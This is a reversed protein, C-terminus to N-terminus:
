IIGTLFLVDLFFVILLFQKSKLFCLYFKKVILIPDVLFAKLNIEVSHGDRYYPLSPLGM